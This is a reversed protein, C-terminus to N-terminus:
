QLLTSRIYHYIELDPQCIAEIKQLNESTIQPKSVPNKNKHPIRLTLGFQKKFQSKFQEIDELIGVLKFKQLNQKATEIREQLYTEHKSRDGLFGALYDVYLRGKEQSKQSNLFSALDEQISTPESHPKSWDYFYNSIYRKVPDRLVTVYAYSSAFQQWIQENFHIHGSIYPVGRMMADLLLTDRILYLGKRVGTSPTYVVKSMSKTTQPSVYYSCYRYHKQIANNISSGGTKPLHM